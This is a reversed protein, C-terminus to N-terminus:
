SVCRPLNTGKGLGPFIDCSWVSSGQWYAMCSLIRTSIMALSGGEIELECRAYEAQSRAWLPDNSLPESVKGTDHKEKPSKYSRRLKNRFSVGWSAGSGGSDEVGVWEPVM